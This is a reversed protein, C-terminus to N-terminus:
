TTGISVPKKSETLIEIVDIVSFFWEGDQEIRRISKNEFAVIEQNEM